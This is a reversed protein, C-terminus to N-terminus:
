CRSPRRSCSGAEAQFVQADELGVVALKGIEILHVPSAIDDEGPVSGSGAHANRIAVPDRRIAGPEDMQSAVDATKAISMGHSLSSTTVQDQCFTSPPSPACPIIASLGRRDRPQFGERRRARQRLNKLHGLAAFQDGADELALGDIRRGHQAHLISQVAQFPGFGDATQRRQDGTGCALRLHMSSQTAWDEQAANRASSFHLRDLVEM